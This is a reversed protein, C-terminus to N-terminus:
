VDIKGINPNYDPLKENRLKAIFQDADKSSEFDLAVSSRDVGTFTYTLRDPKPSINSLKYLTNVSFQNERSQFGRRPDPRVSFSTGIIYHM